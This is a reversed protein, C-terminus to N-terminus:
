CFLAVFLFCYHIHHVQIWYIIVKFTLPKFAVISLCLNDAHCLFCLGILMNDILFGSSIYVYMSFFHVCVCVSHAKPLSYVVENKGQGEIYKGFRGLAHQWQLLIVCNILCM